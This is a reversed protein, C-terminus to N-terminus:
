KVCPVLSALMPEETTPCYIVDGAAMASPRYEEFGALVMELSHDASVQMTTQRLLGGHAGAVGGVGEFITAIPADRSISSCVPGSAHGAQWWQKM